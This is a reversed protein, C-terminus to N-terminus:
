RLTNLKQALPDQATILKKSKLYDIWTAFQQDSLLKYAREQISITLLNPDNSLTWLDDFEPVQWDAINLFKYRQINSYLENYNDYTKTVFGSYLMFETLHHPYMSYQCFFNFFDPITECMKQVTRTHFMFPVGGPGIVEPNKINFYEEIFKQASLFVPITAFSKLNARGRSDFWLNWDLKKVFWTKSDLCLSWSSEAQNAVLLKYLQQSRWGDLQENSGFISRPLVKVKHALIGWWNKDICDCYGDTDNVCVYINAIRDPDLNLLISRAQIELLCFDNRYAIVVIDIVQPRGGSETTRDM